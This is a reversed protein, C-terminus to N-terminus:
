LRVIENKWIAATTVNAVAVMQIVLEIRQEFLKGLQVLRFGSRMQGRRLPERPVRKPVKRHM